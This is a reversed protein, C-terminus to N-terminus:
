VLSAQLAALSLKYGIFCPTIELMQLNICALVATAIILVRNFLGIYLMNAQQVLVCLYSVLARMISGLVINSSDLTERVSNQAFWVAFECM